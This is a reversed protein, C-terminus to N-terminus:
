AMRPERRPAAATHPLADPAELHPLVETMFRLLTAIVDGKPQQAYHFILTIYEAPLESYIDIWAQRVREIMGSEKINQAFDTNPDFPFQPFFPAYFNKYIDVDYERLKRDYDAESECIHVWRV